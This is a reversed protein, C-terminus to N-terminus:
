CPLPCLSQRAKNVYLKPVPFGSTAPFLYRPNEGSAASMGCQWPKKLAFIVELNVWTFSFFAGKPLKLEFAESREEIRPQWWTFYIGTRGLLGVWYLVDPCILDVRWRSMCLRKWICIPQGM